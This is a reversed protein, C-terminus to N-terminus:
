IADSGTGFMRNLTDLVKSFIAGRRCTRYTSTETVLKRRFGAEISHLAKCPTRATNRRTHAPSHHYAVSTATAYQVVLAVNGGAFYDAQSACCNPSTAGVISKLLNIQHCKLLNEQHSLTVGRIREEFTLNRSPPIIRDDFTVPRSGPSSRQVIPM